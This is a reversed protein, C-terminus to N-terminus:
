KSFLALKMVPRKEMPLSAIYKEYATPSRWGMGEQKRENNYFYLVKELAKQMNGGSTQKLTPLLHYKLTSNRQEAYGNELCNNAVSINIKWRNIKGLYIKSFYQSGGDTHHICNNLNAIGRLTGWRDLAYKAEEARMRKSIRAGVWYASYIDILSFVYYRDKGISVYTLDGVVVQNIGTLSIGNILNSYNWSQLCSKTTVVKVRLPRLSLGYKSLLQEFKTVGIGYTEKISLNYYLSRSGARRDKHERYDLVRKTLEKILDQERKEGAMMKSAGQRSIKFYNYVQEKTLGEQPFEKLM